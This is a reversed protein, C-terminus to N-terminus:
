MRSSSCSSGGDADFKLELNHNCIDDADLEEDATAETTGDEEM